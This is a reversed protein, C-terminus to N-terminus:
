LWSMTQVQKHFSLIHNHLITIPQDAVSLFAIFPVHRRVDPIRVALIRASWKVHVIGQEIDRINM